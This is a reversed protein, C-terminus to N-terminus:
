SFRPLVRKQSNHEVYYPEEKFYDFLASKGLPAEGRRQRYHLEWESYVATSWIYLKDSEVVYHEPGIKDSSVLVTLDEMLVSLENEEEKATKDRLAERNYIWEAFSGGMETDQCLLEVGAIIIAYITADRSDIGIEVLRKGHTKISSLLKQTTNRTKGSILHVLIASMDVALKNVADFHEADREQRSLRIICQRSLLASDDPLTQGSLLVTGRVPYGAAGFGIHGKGSGIRDFANRLVGNKETVKRDNRYEDLWVPLCSYYALGRAVWNQSTESITKEPCTLGFFALLWRALTNKGVKLKGSLFLEPFCKFEKVIEPLYVHAACFGLGLWANFELNMYTTELVAKIFDQADKRVCVLPLAAGDESGEFPIPLYGSGDVWIVGDKDPYIPNGGEPIAMNGFLWFRGKAMYGIRDPQSVLGPNTFLETKLLERLEDAKGDWFYNGCSFCFEAFRSRAVMYSARLQFIDSEEGDSNRFTVQRIVGEPTSISRKVLITFNSIPVDVYESGSKRPHWYCGDRVFILSERTRSDTSGNLPEAAPSATRSHRGTSDRQRDHTGNTNALAKSITQHRYSERDWKEDYLKSNQIIRFIQDEDQTWYTLISALALDAESESTYGDIDGAMLRRLKPGNSAALAKEIIEQDPISSGGPTTHEPQKGNTGFIEHCIEAVESQRQEIRPPTKDLHFGTFTFWRGRDYIEFQGKRSRKGPKRARVVVHLGTGSPSVETYSALREIIHRAWEEVHGTKPDRCGDLDIGCYPDDETFVFGVGDGKGSDCHAWASAFDSWTRSDNVRVNRTNTPNKLIKTLKGSREKTEWYGWQRCSRLERPISDTKLNM